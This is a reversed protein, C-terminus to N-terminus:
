LQIPPGVAGPAKAAPSAPRAAAAPKTKLQLQTKVRSGPSTFVVLGQNGLRGDIREARTIQHNAQRKLVVQGRAQVQNTSWNWQCQDAQLSDTPQQLQCHSQVVALQRKSFIQFGVGQVRSQNLVGHFPLSSHILEQGVDIETQLADLSANRGVDVLRVPALLTLIQSQSNGKLSPATLIQQQPQNAGREGSVPLSAATKTKAPTTASAPSASGRSVERVGIVPGESTIEGSETFWDAARVQLRLNADSAAGRGDPGRELLPHGRLELKSEQLLFRAKRASVRLNRQTGVPDQDLVVLQENPYWRARTAVVTLPRPGVRVLQIRGELQIVAGDNLLTASTASLQYKPRGHDFVVGKLDRTQALKRGLDYRAEPSTLSWTRQGLLDRQELNLSRFVFPQAPQETVHQRQCGTIPVIWGALAVAILGLKPRNPTRESPGM